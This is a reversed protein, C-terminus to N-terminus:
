RSLTGSYNESLVFSFVNAKGFSQFGLQRCVVKADLGSWFDHCVAGWVGNNCLEVRGETVDNGNVLKM